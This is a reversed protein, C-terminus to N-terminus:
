AVGSLQEKKQPGFSPSNIPTSPATTTAVNLNQTGALYSKLAAPTFLSSASAYPAVTAKTTAAIDPALAAAEGAYNDGEATGPGFLNALQQFITQKSNLVQANNNQLNNDLTAGADARRQKQQQDAQSWAQSIGTANTDFTSRAAGTDSNAALGVLHKVIDLGSGGLAGLSSLVGRLGTSANAANLLAAQNNKTYTQENQTVNQDHSQADLADQADYGAIARGFEDHSGQNKNTLVTGLTDLSALLPTSAARAAAAKQAAAVAAQDVVPAQAPAQAPASAAAAYPAGTSYGSAKAIAVPDPAGGKSAVYAKVLANADPAM